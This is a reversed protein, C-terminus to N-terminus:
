RPAKRKSAGKTPESTKKSSVAEDATADDRSQAAAKGGKHKSAKPKLAGSGGGAKAGRSTAGGSSTRPPATAALQAAGRFVEDVLSRAMRLLPTEGEGEDNGYPSGVPPARTDGSISGTEGFFSARALRRQEPDFM